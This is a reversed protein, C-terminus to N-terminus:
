PTPTTRSDPVMAHAHHPRGAGHRPQEEAHPSALLPARSRRSHPPGRPPQSAPLLCLPDCLHGSAAAHGARRPPRTGNELSSERAPDPAVEPKDPGSTQRSTESAPLRGATQPSSSRCSYLVHDLPEKECWSSSRDFARRWPDPLLTTNRFARGAFEVPRTMGLSQQILYSKTPPGRIKIQGNPKLPLTAFSQKRNGDQPVIEREM